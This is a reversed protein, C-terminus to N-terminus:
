KWINSEDVYIKKSVVQIDSFSDNFVTNATDFDHRKLALSLQALSGILIDCDDIIMSLESYHMKLYEKMRQIEDILKDADKPDIEVWQSASRFSQHQCNPVFASCPKSNHHIITTNKGVGSGMVGVQNAIYIDGRM